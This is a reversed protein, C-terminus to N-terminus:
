MKSWTRSLSAQISGHPEDTPLFVDDAFKVITQNDKNKLNVPLFHINPMKLQISSIDLFRETFYHPKQPVSSLSEYSYRWAATIETALLRERTEPLATYQDRIFGEFGSQKYCYFGYYAIM